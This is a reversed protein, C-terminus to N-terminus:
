SVERAHGNGPSSSHVALDERSLTIPVTTPDAMPVGPLATERFRLRAWKRYQRPSPHEWQRYFHVAAFVWTATAVLAAFTFGLPGLLFTAGLGLVFVLIALATAKAWVTWRPPRKAGVEAGLAHFHEYTAKWEEAQEGLEALEEALKEKRGDREKEAHTAQRTLRQARSCARRYRWWRHLDELCHHPALTAAAPFLLTLFVMVTRSLWVHAKLFQGFLTGSVIAGFAMQQARLLGLAGLGIVVGVAVALPWWSEPQQERHRLVMHILIAAATLIGTATLLQWQPDAVGIMDLMPALLLAEAVVAFGSAALLVLPLFLRPVDHGHEEKVAGWHEEASNALARLTEARAELGKIEPAADKRLEAKRRDCQGQIEALGHEKPVGNPGDFFAQDEISRARQWIAKKM